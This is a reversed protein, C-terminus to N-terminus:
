KKKPEFFELFDDLYRELLTNLIGGIKIPSAKMKVVFDKRLRVTTTVLEKKDTKVM